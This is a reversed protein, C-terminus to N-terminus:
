DVHVGRERDERERGEGRDGRRLVKGGDTRAVAPVRAVGVTRRSKGAGARRPPRRAGWDRRARRCCPARRCPRTESAGDFERDTRDRQGRLRAGTCIGRRAGVERVQRAQGPVPRRAVLVLAGRGRGRAGLADLLRRGSAVEAADLARRARGIGVAVVTAALSADPLGAQSDRM